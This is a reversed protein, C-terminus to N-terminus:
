GKLIRRAIETSSKGPLHGLVTIRGGQTEIIAREEAPLQDVTYDGGKVYIDPQAIQLFNTARLDDFIFVANVSELAALVAARDAETHIPRDPGKLEATSRDSNLGVVLADAKNRAAQLYNVHGAHLIDFCGNTAALTRGEARLAERWAPLTEADLIKEHFDL